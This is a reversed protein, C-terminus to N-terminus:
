FLLLRIFIANKLRAFLAEGAVVAEIYLELGLGVQGAHNARSPRGSLPSKPV